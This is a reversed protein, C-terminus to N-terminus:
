QDAAWIVECGIVVSEGAGIASEPILVAGCKVASEAQAVLRAGYVPDPEGDQQETDKFLKKMQKWQRVYKNQKNETGQILTEMMVMLANVDRTDRVKPYEPLAEIANRLPTVAQGLILFFSQSTETEIKSMQQKQWERDQKYEMLKLEDFKGDKDPNPKTPEKVEPEKGFMILEFQGRGHHQECYEAVKKRTKQFKSMQSPSIFTFVNAGLAEIGVRENYMNNKGKEGAQALMMEEHFEEEEEDSSSGGNDMQFPSGMQNLQAEMWAIQSRRLNSSSM